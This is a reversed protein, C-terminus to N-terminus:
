GDSKERGNGSAPGTREGAAFVGDYVEALKLTVDLSKLQVAAGLGAFEEAQWHDTDARAYRVVRPEAEHVLLYEKLSDSQQYRRWKEGSEYEGQAPAVVEVLLSPNLLFDIGDRRELRPEGCFVMVDPSFVDAGIRVLMGRGLVRCNATCPRPDLSYSLHGAIIAHELSTPPIVRVRGDVYERFELALEIEDLYDELTLTATHPQTAM